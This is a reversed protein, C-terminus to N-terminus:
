SSTSLDFALVPEGDARQLVCGRGRLARGLPPFRQDGMIEDWIGHSPYLVVTQLAPLAPGALFRFHAELDGWNVLSNALALTGQLRVVRVSDNVAGMTINHRPPLTINVSYGIEQLTHCRHLAPVLYDADLSHLSRALELTRLQAGFMDLLIVLM